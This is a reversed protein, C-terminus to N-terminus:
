FLNLLGFFVFQVGLLLPGVWSQKRFDFAEFIWLMLGGALFWGIYNKVPIIQAAWHWYDFKIAMPEIFLDLMVLVLAGLFIRAWKSKIRSRNMTVGTAYVLMFWNIGITLPIDLLKIGLTHGYAYDGFIWSKHIGIWEAVFSLMYILLVFSLFKENILKHSFFIMGLMLLLHFPVIKLFLPRIAPVALGIFGVIHFLIIIGAAIKPNLGTPREM